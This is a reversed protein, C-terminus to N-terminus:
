YCYETIVGILNSGIFRSLYSRPSRAFVSLIINKLGNNQWRFKAQVWRLQVYSNILM